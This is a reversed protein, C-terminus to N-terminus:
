ELRPVVLFPFQQGKLMRITPMQDGETYAFVKEAARAHIEPIACFTPFFRKKERLGTRRKIEYRATQLLYHTYVSHIGSPEYVAGQDFKSAYCRVFLGEETEMIKENYKDRCLKVYNEDAVSFTKQENISDMAREKVPSWVTGCCDAILLTRQQGTLKRIEGVALDEEGNLQLFRSKSKTCYGHGTYIILFFKVDNDRWYAFRGELEKRSVTDFCWIETSTWGGAEPMSLYRIYNEVDYQLGPLPNDEGGDYSIIIARRRM